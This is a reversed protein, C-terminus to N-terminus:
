LEAELRAGGDQQELLAGEGGLAAAWRSSLEAPTKDGKSDGGPTKKQSTDEGLSSCCGFIPTAFPGLLLPLVPPANDM